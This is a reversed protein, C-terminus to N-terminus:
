KREKERRNYENVLELLLETTEERRQEAPINWDSIIREAERDFERNLSYDSKVNGFPRYGTAIAFTDTIQYIDCNWGYVGCTYAIPNHYRLLNQLDCYGVSLVKCYGNMIASKTTKFKM